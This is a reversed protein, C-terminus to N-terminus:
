HAAKYRQWEEYKQQAFAQLAPFRAPDTDMSALKRLIEFNQNFGGPYAWIAREIQTQAEAQRGMRALLIVERYVVSEIPVFHMVRENLASNDAVHNWGIEGLGLEIYHEWLLKQPGRVSMLREFNLRREYNHDVGEAVPTNALEMQRYGQLLQFWSFCGFLLIAVVSLHGAIRFRLRFFTSDLAGLTVAALGLFYAYFLPYELLSHIALVAFVGGGWWQYISPPMKRAQRLWLAVTSLLVLVGALGMEAATELVINHAHNFLGPSITNHVLPGLQFHQWGFQGFGAGFLPFQKFIIWAEHWLGFRVSSDWLSGAAEAVKENGAGVLSAAGVMREVTTVNSTYGELWPLKVVFHMLGFGLIVLLSYHLLARNAQDRRQWLFAMAIMSLLYLWASRSGSLVLVFLLPVLLPVVQWIRMKWRTYLLGLSVLALATYNALHNPQGMNAFIASNPNIQVVYDFVINRWDYKQAMGIVASLEGGLVLFTALATVLAPLGMEKRLRHGLMMLLIAWLLYLSTMIVQALYGVKGLFFQLWLLLMFGLPLLVIRPIEPQRWYRRTVLLPMACLGLLAAGWEQYFTTIPFQHEGYLFPLIWLLGVFFLSLYALGIKSSFQRLSASPEISAIRQLISM